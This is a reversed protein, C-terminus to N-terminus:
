ECYPTNKIGFRHLYHNLGCHGTWLQAIKAAMSRNAIENYLKPGTPANKGKMIRQLATATKTNERWKKHWQKKALLKIYRVCASKLPRHKFPQNSAQDQAARKAEKDAIENGEIKAHGPIWVIEIQLHPYNSITEDINDLIDRIIAQGSQRRPQDIAKVAAQSDTYIRGTLCEHHNWLQKVALYLAALEATYVNYLTESGLHQRDVEKTTSNYVAAGIKNDIGSGNTYITVTTADTHQQMKGHQKKADDKTAEVIIKM